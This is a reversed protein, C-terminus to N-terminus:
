DRLQFTTTPRTLKCGMHYRRLMKGICKAFSVSIDDCCGVSREDTPSRPQFYQWSHEDYMVYVYWVQHRANLMANKCLRMSRLREICPDLVDPHAANLCIAFQAETTRDSTSAQKLSRDMSTGLSILLHASLNEQKAEDKERERPANM